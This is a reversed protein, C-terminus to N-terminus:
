ICCLVCRIDSVNHRESEAPFGQEAHNEKMDKHNKVEKWKLGQTKKEGRKDHKVESSAKRNRAM